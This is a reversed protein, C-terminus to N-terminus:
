EMKWQGRICNKDSVILRAMPPFRWGEESSAVTLGGMCLTAQWVRGGDSPMDVSVLSMDVPASRASEVAGAM